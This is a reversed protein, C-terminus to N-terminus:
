RRLTIKLSIIKVNSMFFFAVTFFFSLFHFSLLCVMNHLDNEPVWLYPQGRRLIYKVKSTHIDGKSNFDYLLLLSGNAFYKTCTDISLSNPSYCHAVAIKAFAVNQFKLLILNSSHNRLVCYGIYVYLCYSFWLVSHVLNNYTDLFQVIVSFLLRFFSLFRIFCNPSGILSLFM